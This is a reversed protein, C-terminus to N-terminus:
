PLLRRVLQEWAAQVRALPLGRGRRLETFLEASSAALLVDALVDVDLGADAERLLVALHTRYLAYPRSRLRGTGVPGREAALILEAHEDLLALLGHGFAVLREVPPAGPGLPPPGRLLADQFGRERESVLARALNARDGVRRFVTGKGVGAEAAVADMTLGDIGCRAVIRGAAALVRARNRAADARERPEGAGILPLERGLPSGDDGVPTRPLGDPM